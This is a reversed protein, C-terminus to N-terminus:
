GTQQKCHVSHDNLIDMGGGGGAGNQAKNTLARSDGMAEDVGEDDPPRSVRQARKAEALGFCTTSPQTTPRIRRATVVTVRPPCNTSANETGPVSDCCATSRSWSRKGLWAPSLAVITKSAGAPI